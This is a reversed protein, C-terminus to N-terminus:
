FANFWPDDEAQGVLMGKGPERDRKAWVARIEAQLDYM